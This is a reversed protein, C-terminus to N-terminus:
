LTSYGGDALLDAGLVYSSDDSALFLAASAMEEPKGFRGIPVQSEIQQAMESKAEQPLGMRDYIPTEIPGPSLVNVRIRRALLEASFARALYRVAAKTAGYVSMGPMGHHTVTSGTLVVSGGDALLPIAKQVTFFLGRVNVGFLRDFYAEDVQDVPTLPAIGANAVLVDIRGYAQKVRAFLRDLDTADAVDGQVALHGEGLAAATQDLTEQNRGFIVVAAGEAAFREAISRGIGSNGGTIVAIKQNLKSM